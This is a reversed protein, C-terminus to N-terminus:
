TKPPRCVVTQFGSCYLFSRISLAASLEECRYKKIKKKVTLPLDPKLQMIFVSMYNQIFSM